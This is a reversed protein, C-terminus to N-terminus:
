DFGMLALALSGEQRGDDGAPTGVQSVSLGLM